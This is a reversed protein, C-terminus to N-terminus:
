YLCATQNSLFATEKICMDVASFLNQWIFNNRCKSQMHILSVQVVMKKRWLSEKCVLEEDMEYLVSLLVKRTPNSQRIDSYKVLNWTSWYKALYRVFWFNSSRWNESALKRRYTRSCIKIRAWYRVELIFNLCYPFKTRKNSQHLCYYPSWGNSLLTNKSVFRPSTKAM